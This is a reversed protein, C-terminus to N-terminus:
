PVTIITVSTQDAGTASFKLEISNGNLDAASLSITYYGGSIATPANTCAGFAGGDISRQATVTLGPLPTVHDTTDFMPFQFAALAQNKKINSAVTAQVLNSSLALPTGAATDAIWRLLMAQVYGNTTLAAPAANVWNKINVDLIGATAPTSVATGLIDQLDVKPVGTVAPTPIVQGVWKKTNISLSSSLDQADTSILPLNDTGIINAIRKKDLVSQWVIAKGAVSSVTAAISLTCTDGAIGGSPITFAAKYRGTDVNTVTVTVTGDDTGNRAFTGVPLSDANLAAGTAPNQTTWECTVADSPLYSM